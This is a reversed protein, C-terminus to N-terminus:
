NLSTLLKPSDYEFVCKVWIECSVIWLIRLVCNAVNPLLSLLFFPIINFCKQHVPIQTGDNADCGVVRCQTSAPAMQLMTLQYAAGCSRAAWRCLRVVVHGLREGRSAFVSSSGIQQARAWSVVLKLKNHIHALEFIDGAGKQLTHSQFGKYNKTSLSLMLRAAHSM